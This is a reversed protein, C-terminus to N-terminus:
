LKGITYYVKTIRRKKDIPEYERNNEPLELSRGECVIDVIIKPYDLLKEEYQRMLTSVIDGIERARFYSVYASFEEDNLVEKGSLVGLEKLLVSDGPSEDTYGIIIIKVHSSLFNDRHYFISDILPKYVDLAKEQKYDPINVATTGFFPAIPFKNMYDKITTNPTGYRIMDNIMDSEPGHYIREVYRIYGQENRFKSYKRYTILNDSDAQKRHIKSNISNGPGPTIAQANVPDVLLNLFYFHFAAILFYKM